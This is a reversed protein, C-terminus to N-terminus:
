AVKTGFDDKEDPEEGWRLTIFGSIDFTSFHFNEQRFREVWAKRYIFFKNPSKPSRSREKEKLSKLIKQKYRPITAVQKCRPITAVQKYRIIIEVLDKAKFPLPYTLQINDPIIVPEKHKAAVQINNDPVLDGNVFEEYVFRYNTVSVAPSSNTTVVSNHNM